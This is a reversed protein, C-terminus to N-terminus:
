SRAPQPGNSARIIETTRGHSNEVIVMRAPFPGSVEPGGSGAPANTVTVCPTDGNPEYINVYTEGPALGEADPYIDVHTAEYIHVRERKEADCRKVKVTLM